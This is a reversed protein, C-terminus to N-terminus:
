SLSFWNSYWSCLSRLVRLWGSCWMCKQLSSKKSTLSWTSCLSSLRASWGTPSWFGNFPLCQSLASCSFLSLAVWLTDMLVFLRFIPIFVEPLTLRSCGFFKMVFYLVTPVGFGFSYVVVVGLRVLELRFLFDSKDNKSFYRSLNGTSSLLFIITTMLWFPGYFDANENLNEVFTKNIPIFSLKIRGVVDEQSIQFFQEYFELRCFKTCGTPAQSPESSAGQQKNDKDSSNETDDVPHQESQQIFQTLVNYYPNYSAPQQQNAPSAPSTAEKDEELDIDYPNSSM